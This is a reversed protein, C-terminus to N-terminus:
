NFTSIITDRPDGVRDVWNPVVHTIAAQRSLQQLEPSFPIIELGHEEMISLPGWINGSALRLAELESKAAQELIIQQLDRPIASWVNGNIVNSGAQPIPIPGYLYQSAEHWDLALATSPITHACDLRGQNLANPVDAANIVQQVEFGAGNLWDLLTQRETGNVAAGQIDSAGEIRTNCFLYPSNQLFWSHNPIVADSQDRVLKDIEAAIAQYGNLAERRTWYLGYLDQLDCAPTEEDFFLGIVSAGELSGAALDDLLGDRDLGGGLINRFTFRVQGNTRDELNPSFYHELLGCPQLSSHLCAFEIQIREGRSTLPTPDELNAEQLLGHYYESLYIWPHERVAEMPLLGSRLGKSSQGALQSLDGMFIAGPGNAHEAAYAALVSSVAPTQLPTSVPGTPGRLDTVTGDANIRMGVIPGLKENFTETIIPDGPDGVRGVWGPIVHDIAVQRSERMMQDSFPIYEMGADQLRTLGVETQAPVLRLAELELRAGEELIIQQLDHPIGNWTDRNIANSNVQLNYLPGAVYGTVENWRQGYGADAGTFACDLIERELATYIEAFAVYGAQAGMGNIWDSLTDGHSRTVKGQLDELSRVPDQCFLHQDWGAYWSHSFVVGGGSGQFVLSDLDGSMLAAANYSEEATAFIGWLAQIDFAPYQNSVWNGNITASEVVGDWLLDLVDPGPVNREAFSTTVFRVQGNTRELVNPVLYNM